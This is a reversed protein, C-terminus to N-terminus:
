EPNKCSVPTRIWRFNIRSSRDRERAPFSLGGFISCGGGIQALVSSPDRRSPPRPISTVKYRFRVRAGGLCPSLYPAEGNKPPSVRGQHATSFPERGLSGKPVRCCRRPRRTETVSWSPCSSPAGSPDHRRRHRKRRFGDFVEERASELRAPRTSM